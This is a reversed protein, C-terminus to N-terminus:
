NEQEQAAQEAKKALLKERALALRLRREEERARELEERAKAEATHDRWEGNDDRKLLQVTRGKTDLLRYQSIAERTYLPLNSFGMKNADIQGRYTQDAHAQEWREYDEQESRAPILRESNFKFTEM